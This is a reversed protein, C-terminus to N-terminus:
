YMIASICLNLPRFVKGIIVLIGSNKGIGYVMLGHYFIRSLDRSTHLVIVSTCFCMLFIPHCQTPNSVEM